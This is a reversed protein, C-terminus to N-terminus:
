GQCEPIYAQKIKRAGPRGTQTMAVLEAEEDKNLNVIYKKTM